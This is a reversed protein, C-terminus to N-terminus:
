LQHTSQLMQSPSFKKYKGKHYVIVCHKLNTPITHGLKHLEFSAKSVSDMVVKVVGLETYYSKTYIGTISDYSNTIKHAKYLGNAIPCRQGFAVNSLILLVFLLFSTKM